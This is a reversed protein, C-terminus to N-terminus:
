KLALTRRESGGKESQIEVEVSADATKAKVVWSVERRNAAPGGGGGGGGFGGSRLARTGPINGLLKVAKGDAVEANKPKLRARVPKALEAKIARETINTPLYGDNEVVAEVRFLGGGLATARADTLRLLPASNAIYVFWPVKMAIEKELMKPPPNQQTFKRKWGGIELKGLQPHTYEKWPTFGTGGLEEDNWRLRERESVRKDGDYDKGFGGWHEPVWGIV